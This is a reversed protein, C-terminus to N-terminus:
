RDDDEYEERQGALIRMVTDAQEERAVHRSFGVFWAIMGPIFICMGIILRGLNALVLPIFAILLLAIGYVLDTM